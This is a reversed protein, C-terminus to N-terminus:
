PQVIDSLEFHMVAEKNKLKTVGDPEVSKITAAGTLQYETEITFRQKSDQKKSAWLGTNNLLANLYTDLDGDEDKGLRENSLTGRVALGSYLGTTYAAMILVNGVIKGKREFDFIAAVGSGNGSDNKAGFVMESDETIIQDAPHLPTNYEDMLVYHNGSWTQIDRCLLRTGEAKNSVTVVLNADNSQLSRELLSILKLGADSNIAEVATQAAAVKSM